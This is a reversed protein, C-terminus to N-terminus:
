YHIFLFNSFRSFSISLCSCYERQFQRKTKPITSVSSSTVSSKTISVIDVFIFMSIEGASRSRVCLIPFFFAPRFLGLGIITFSLLYLTLSVTKELLFFRFPDLTLIVSLKVGCRISIRFLALTSCPNVFTHVDSPFIKYLVEVSFLTLNYKLYCQLLPTTITAM